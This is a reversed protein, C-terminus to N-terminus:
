QNGDNSPAGKAARLLEMINEPRMPASLPVADSGKGDAEKKIKALIELCKLDEFDLGRNAEKDYLRNICSILISEIKDDTEKTM